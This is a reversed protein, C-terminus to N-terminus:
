LTLFFLMFLLGISAQVTKKSVSLISCAESALLTPWVSSLYLIHKQKCIYLVFYDAHFHTQYM